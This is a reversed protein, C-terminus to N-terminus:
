CGVCVQLLYGDLKMLVFLRLAQMHNCRNDRTMIGCATLVPVLLVSLRDAGSVGCLPSVNEEKEKDREGEGGQVRDGRRVRDTDVDQLCKEAKPRHRCDTFM